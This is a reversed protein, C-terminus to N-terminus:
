AGMISCVRPMPAFIHAYHSPSFFVDPKEKSLFLDPMLKTLIWLGGGPLIRYKFKKTEKPMDPLPKEKLYVIFQDGSSLEDQLLSINQLLNFAYQNVGVRRAINAENGDIGIIM